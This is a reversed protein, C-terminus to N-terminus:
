EITEIRNPYVLVLRSRESARCVNPWIRILLSELAAFKLNGVRVHIVSPGTSTVLVRDSFDADKTVITLRHVDAYRWIASDSWTTGIDHVFECDDGSWLTLRRPLNADILFCAM